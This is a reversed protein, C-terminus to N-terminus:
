SLWTPLGDGIALGEKLGVEGRFKHAGVEDKQGADGISRVISKEWKM